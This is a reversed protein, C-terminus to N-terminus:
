EGGHTLRSRLQYEKADMSADRAVLNELTQLDAVSTEIPTTHTPEKPSEITLANRAKDDSESVFAKSSVIM